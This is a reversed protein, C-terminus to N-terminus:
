GGLAQHALIAAGLAWCYVSFAGLHGTRVARLLVHISAYAVVASVAAGVLWMGVPAGPALLLPAKILNGGLIAPVSLLFSYRVALERDLGLALGAAITSGSRSVGPLLAVMQAAGIGLADRWRLAPEPRGGAGRRRTAYLISGTLLFGLAIVTLSRFTAEVWDGLLFYGAAAPVTGAGVLWVLRRAPVTDPGSQVLALAMRALDRWYYVVVAVLTGAHLLVDYALDAEQFGAMYNQLAALHGSSSVPLFETVGQVVALLIAEPWTM